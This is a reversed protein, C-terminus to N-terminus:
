HGGATTKNWDHSFTCTAYDPDIRVYTGEVREKVWNDVAASRLKGEAAQQIM